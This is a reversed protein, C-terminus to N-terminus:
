HNRTAANTALSKFFARATADMELEDIAAIADKAYRVALEDCRRDLGLSRYIETVRSVKEERDLKNSLLPTIQEPAENPGYDSAM